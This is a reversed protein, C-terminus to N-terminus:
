LQSFFVYFDFCLEILAPFKRHSHHSLSIDARESSHMKRGRSAM